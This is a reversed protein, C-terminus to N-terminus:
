FLPFFREVRVPKSSLQCSLVFNGKFDACIQWSSKETSSTNRSERRDVFLLCDKERIQSSFVFFCSLHSCSNKFAFSKLKCIDKKIQSLWYVFLMLFILLAGVFIYFFMFTLSFVLPETDEVFFAKKYRLYSWEINYENPVIASILRNKNASDLGGAKELLLDDFESLSSNLLPNVSEELAKEYHIEMSRLLDMTFTQSDKSCEFVHNKDKQFDIKEVQYEVSQSWFKRKFKNFKANKNKNSNSMESSTLMDYELLFNVVLKRCPVCQFHNNLVSEEVCENTPCISSNQNVYVELIYHGQDLNRINILKNPSVQGINLIHNPTILFYKDVDYPNNPKENFSFSYLKLTYTTGAFLSAQGTQQYDNFILKLNFIGDSNDINMCVRPLYDTIMAFKRKVSSSKENLMKKETSLPQSQFDRVFQVSDFDYAKFIPDKCSSRKDEAKMAVFEYPLNPREMDYCEECTSNGCPCKKAQKACFNEENPEDFIGKLFFFLFM